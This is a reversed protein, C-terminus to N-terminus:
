RAVLDPGPAVLFKGFEARVSQSRLCNKLKQIHHKALPGISWLVTAFKSALAYIMMDLLGSASGLEEGREAASSWSISGSKGPEVTTLDDVHVNIVSNRSNDCSYEIDLLQVTCMWSNVHTIVGNGRFSLKGPPRGPAPPSRPSTIKSKVVCGVRFWKKMLKVTGKTGHTRLLPLATALSAM